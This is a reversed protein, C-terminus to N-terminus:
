ARINGQLVAEPSLRYNSEFQIFKRIEERLKVNSGEHQINCVDIGSDLHELFYELAKKLPDSAKYRIEKVRVNANNDKLHKDSLEYKFLKADTDLNDIVLTGDSGTAIIRYNIFASALSLFMYANVSDNYEFTTILTDFANGNFCSNGSVKVAAPIRGTIYNFLSLNEELVKWLKLEDPNFSDFGLRSVQVHILKGVAGSQLLDKMKVVCPHFLVPYAAMVKSGSKKIKGALDNIDELKHNLPNEVFINKGENVLLCGAEGHIDYPPALVYADFLDEFTREICTYIGVGPHQKMLQKSVYALDEEVIGKLVGMDHLIKIYKGGNKAGVVCVRRKKNIMFM